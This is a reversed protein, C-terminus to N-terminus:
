LLALLTEIRAALVDDIRGRVSVSVGTGGVLRAMRVTLQPTGVLPYEFWRDDAAEDTDDLAGVLAQEDLHDFGYGIFGSLHELLRAEGGEHIWDAVLRETGGAGGRAPRVPQKRDLRALLRARAADLREGYDTAFVEPLTTELVGDLSWLPSWVAPDQEALATFAPDDMVHFLWDSLVLAQDHSFTVTMDTGPM